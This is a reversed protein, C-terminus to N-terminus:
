PAAFGRSGSKHEGLLGGLDGHPKGVFIVMSGLDRAFARVAEERVALEAVVGFEEGLEQFGM